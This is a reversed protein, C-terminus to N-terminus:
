VNAAGPALDIQALRWIEECVADESPFSEYFHYQGRAVSGLQYDGDRVMIHFRYDGGTFEGFQPTYEGFYVLHPDLGADALRSQLEPYKM